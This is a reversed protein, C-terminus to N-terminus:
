KTAGINFAGDSKISYIRGHLTGFQKVWYNNSKWTNSNDILYIANSFLLHATDIKLYPNHIILAYDILEPHTVSDNGTTKDLFIIDKGLYSLFPYHFYFSSDSPMFTSQSTYDIIHPDRIGKKLLNNKIHFKYEDSVLLSDDDTLIYGHNNENILIATNKKLSYFVIENRNSNEIKRKISLTTVLLLSTLLYLFYKREKIVMFAGFFIIAIYMLITEPASLFLNNTVAFPLKDIRIVSYNMIRLSWELLFGIGGGVWPLFGFIFFAVGLILILFSVPIAIMNSLLFYNPFQHFYFIGIPSTGLQAAISVSSLSWFYKLIINAPKWLKYIWPQFFVIGGVALYSLQFGVQTIQYPDDLLLPFMSVFMINFSDIRREYLRGFALFTFMVASRNVSPSLGSLCAYIWIIVLIIITKILAAVSRKKMFFGLPKFLMELIIFLIGVHLGSVALIHMTGTDAYAQQVEDDIASKQGIILAEGVALADKDHIHEEMLLIFNQKCNFIVQWQFKANSINSNRYDNQKLFAIHYVKQNFLYKKYNFEGSNKPSQPETFKNATYLIDGYIFNQSALSDKPIYLISKGKVKRSINEDIALDVEVYLKINKETFEPPKNIRCEFITLSDAGNMFYNDRYLPTDEIVLFAGGFVLILNLLWGHMSQLPFSTALKKIVQFLFYIILLLFFLIGIWHQQLEFQISIIIGFVFPVLYRFLPIHNWYGTM